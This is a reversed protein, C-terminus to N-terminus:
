QPRGLSTAHQRKLGPCRGDRWRRNASRSHCLTREYLGLVITLLKLAADDSGDALAWHLPSNGGEAIVDVLAGKEICYDIMDPNDSRTAWHLASRGRLDTDDIHAITELLLDVVAKHGHLVAVSLPQSGDRSEVHVNAGKNLLEAVVIDKGHRAAECLATEGESDLQDVDVGNEILLRVVNVAGAAAARHIWEEQSEGQEAVALLRSVDGHGGLVAWHRPTGAGSGDKIDPNVGAALLTYVVDLFGNRSAWHLATFGDADVTELTQNRRTLHDTLITVAATNGAYAAVHLPTWGATDVATPDVGEDLLHRLSDDNGNECADHLLM